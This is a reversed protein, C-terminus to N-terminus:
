IQESPVSDPSGLDKELILQITSKSGQAATKNGSQVYERRLKGRFRGLARRPQIMEKGEGQSQNGVIALYIALCSPGQNGRLVSRLWTLGVENFHM